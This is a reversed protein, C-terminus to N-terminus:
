RRHCIYCADGRLPLGAPTLCWVVSVPPPTAPAPGWGDTFYVVVDPRVQRLVSPAFPPRLDTGGRGHVHPLHGRYPTIAHVAADCEVVTVRHYVALRDLESAIQALLASSM